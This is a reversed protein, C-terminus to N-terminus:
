GLIEQHLQFLPLAISDLATFDEGKTLMITVVVDGTQERVVGADVTTEYADGEDPYWGAKSWTTGYASGVYKLGSTEPQAFESALFEAGAEDSGLYEDVACWMATLQNPTVFEYNDDAISEDSQLLRVSEVEDTIGTSSLQDAGSGVVLSTMCDNGYIARLTAYAENDSWELTDSIRSSESTVSDGLEYKGLAAVYPGKISSASYFASDGNYTIAIGNTTDVLSFGVEYGSDEIAQIAKLLPKLKFDVINAGTITVGGTDTATLPSTILSNWYGSSDGDTARAIFKDGVTLGHKATYSSSASDDNTGAIGRGFVLGAAILVLVLGAVAPVVKHEGPWSAFSGLRGGLTNQSAYNRSNRIQPVGRSNSRERRERDGRTRGHRSAGSGLAFTRDSVPSHGAGGHAGSARGGTRHVRGEAECDGAAHGGDARDGAAHRGDARGGAAHGGADGAYGSAEGHGRGSGRGSLSINRVRGSGAQEALRDRSDTHSGANLGSQSGDVYRASGSRERREHDAHSLRREHAKRHSRGDSM